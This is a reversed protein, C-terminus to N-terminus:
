NVHSIGKGPVRAGHRLGAGGPVASTSLTSPSSSFGVIFDLNGLNDNVEIAGPEGLTPYAGCVEGEDCIVDDWDSDTGAYLFYTGKALNSFQFAYRGSSGVQAQQSVVNFDRDLLLVWYHGTTVQVPATMVQMSVPLKLPLGSSAAVTLTASYSGASLGARNVSVVYSGLQDANISGPTVTLWTADSTVGTVSLTGDGLKTLNLTAMSLSVGFDFRNPNAVLAATPVGAALRQAELVAKAADILGWGFQDDRGASGLDTTIAGSALLADLDNPSLAPYVAKMLAVVGCMHPAAMSTGQYFRYDSSRDAGVLTSLVGDGYGDGNRDLSADGGPAAVAINAGYNSYPARGRNIDVASVSVVGNYSAPYGPQASNENGAAAIVIVGANRVQTFLTQEATSFCNLCGLSLNIIDARRSPLTGSDNALGAAYRVGQMVDYSTAGGRGLVRVPMIRAGWSVGAVGVGNDSRAAVTGAVHTGHWSSSAPTSEDGPDDANADIGDGDNSTTTSRIFDYGVVNGGGDRLLANALDTHGFFVGTDIVAVVVEGGASTGNTVDWAQPLNILPYHWQLPYHQDNPTKSAKVIYNPDASQVDARQRLAKIRYLTDLKAAQASTM